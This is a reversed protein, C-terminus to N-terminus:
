RVAGDHDVVVATVDDSAGALQALEVLREAAAQPDAIGSLVRGFTQASLGTTLGDSCLLLRGVPATVVVVDACAVEDVGLARTVVHRLHHAPAEDPTIRGLDVLDQVHSHDRTVLTLVGGVLRYCRSDGIHMVAVGDGHATVSVLTTGMGASVRDHAVDRIHANAAAAVGRLEDVSCPAPSRRLVDIALRSAVDGSKHGGMGDAVAFWQPGCVLADENVARRYGTASGAGGRLSSDTPARDADIVEM